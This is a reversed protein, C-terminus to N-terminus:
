GIHDVEAGSKLGGGGHSWRGFLRLFVVSGFIVLAYLKQGNVKIKRVM